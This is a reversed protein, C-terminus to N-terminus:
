GATSVALVDHVGDHQGQDQERRELGTERRGSRAITVGVELLTRRNSWGRLKPGAVAVTPSSDVHRLLHELAHLEPEADDHLLWLWQVPQDGDPEDDDGPPPYAEGSREDTAAVGLDVAAGFGTGLPAAVVRDAGLLQRLIDASGDTSGTDVAVFRQPPRTQARLGAASQPLWHAGNHAVLVATVVHRGFAPTIPATSM